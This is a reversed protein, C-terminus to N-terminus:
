VKVSFFSEVEAMAPKLIALTKELQQQEDPALEPEIIKYVGGTGLQVPVGM